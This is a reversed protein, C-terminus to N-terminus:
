RPESPGGATFSHECKKCRVKRGLQSDALNYTTGCIPCLVEQPM